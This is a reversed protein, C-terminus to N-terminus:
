KATTNCNYGQKKMELVFTNLMQVSGCTDITPKGYHTCSVCDSLPMIPEEKDCSIFSLGVLIATTWVILLVTRKIIYTKM